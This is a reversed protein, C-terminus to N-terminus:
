SQIISNNRKYNQRIQISPPLTHIMHPPTLTPQKIKKQLPFTTAHLTAYACGPTYNYNQTLLTNVYLKNIM